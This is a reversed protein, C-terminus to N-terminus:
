PQRPSTGAGARAFRRAAEDVSVGLIEAVRPWSAGDSLAAAVREALQQEDDGDEVACRLFYEAVPTENDPSPGHAECWDALAEDDDLMKRTLRTM